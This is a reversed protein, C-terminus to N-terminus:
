NFVTLSGQNEEGECMSVLRGRVDMGFAIVGVKDLRCPEDIAICEGNTERIWEQEGVTMKFCLDSWCMGKDGSLIVGGEVQFVLFSM